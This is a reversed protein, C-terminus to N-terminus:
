WNMQVNLTGTFRRKPVSSTGHCQIAKYDAIVPNTDQSLWELHINFSNFSPGITLALSMNIYSGKGELTWM